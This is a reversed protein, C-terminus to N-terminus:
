AGIRFLVTYNGVFLQRYGRGAYAGIKREPCRHPMVELSLIAAEIDDVINLAVSPEMLTKAIYEFIGDLDRFAHNLMTVRYVILEDDL